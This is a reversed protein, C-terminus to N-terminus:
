ADLLCAVGPPTAALEMDNAEGCLPFACENRQPEKEGGSGSASPEPPAGPLLCAVGPPTAALEM